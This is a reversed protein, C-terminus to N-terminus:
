LIEACIAPLHPYDQIIVPYVSVVCDFPRPQVEQGCRLVVVIDASKFLDTKRFDKWKM